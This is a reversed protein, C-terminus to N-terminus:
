IMETQMQAVAAALLAQHYYDRDGKSRANAERLSCLFPSIALNLTAKITFNSYIIELNEQLLYFKNLIGVSQFLSNSKFYLPEQHPGFM